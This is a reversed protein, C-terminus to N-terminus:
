SFQGVEQAAQVPIFLRELRELFKCQITRRRLTVDLISFDDTIQMLNQVRSISLFSLANKKKYLICKNVVHEMVVLLIVLLSLAYRENLSTPVPTATAPWM